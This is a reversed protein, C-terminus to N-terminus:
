EDHNEGEAEDTSIQPSSVVSLNGGVENLSKEIKQITENLIRVGEDHDYTDISLKWEPSALLQLKIQNDTDDKLADAFAQKIGDVGNLGFCQVNIRSSVKISKRKMQEQITDTLLTQLKADLDDLKKFVEEARTCIEELGKYLTKYERALPWGFKEYLDHMTLDDSKRIVQSLIGHARRSRQYRDNAMEVDDKTTHRKSLDVYGKDEDVHLVVMPEIQGVHILKRMSRIRSKRQLESLIVMGQLGDYELLEVYVGTDTIKKAKVIVVDDREPLENEFMRCRLREELTPQINM